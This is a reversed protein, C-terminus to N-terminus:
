KSFLYYTFVHLRNWDRECHYSLMAPSRFNIDKEVYNAQWVAAMVQLLHNFAILIFVGPKLPQQLYYFILYLTLICIFLYFGNSLFIQSILIIAFAVKSEDDIVVRKLPKSYLKNVGNEIKKQNVLRSQEIPITNGTNDM